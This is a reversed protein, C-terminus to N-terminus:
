KGEGGKMGKGDRTREMGRGRKGGGFGAILEEYQLLLAIQCNRTIFLIIIVLYLYFPLPRVSTIASRQLCVRGCLREPVHRAGLLTACVHRVGEWGYGTSM